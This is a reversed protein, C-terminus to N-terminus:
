SHKSSCVPHDRTERQEGPIVFKYFTKMGSVGVANDPVVGEGM